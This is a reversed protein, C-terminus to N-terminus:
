LFRTACNNKTHDNTRTHLKYNTYIYTYKSFLVVITFGSLQGKDKYELKKDKKQLTSISNVLKTQITIKM